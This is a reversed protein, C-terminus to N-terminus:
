PIFEMSATLKVTYEGRYFKINDIQIYNWSRSLDKIAKDIESFDRCFITLIQKM